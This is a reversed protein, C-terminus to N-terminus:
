HFMRTIVTVSETGQKLTLFEQALREREVLPVYEDCFMATFREWTVVTLEAPSFHVTVFKWWDKAGLLLQNLAFWVRLHEPCSCTYFCGDIDSIWRM